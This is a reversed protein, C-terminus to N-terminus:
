WCFKTDLSVLNYDYDFSEILIHIKILKIIWNLLENLRFIIEILVKILKNNWM